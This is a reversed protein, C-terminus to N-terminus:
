SGVVGDRAVDEIDGEEGTEKAESTVPTKGLLKRLLSSLSCFMGVWDSIWDLDSSSSPCFNSQLLDMGNALAIYRRLCVFGLTKSYAYLFYRCDDLIKMIIASAILLFNIDQASTAQKALNGLCGLSSDGLEQKGRLITM